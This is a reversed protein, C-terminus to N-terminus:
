LVKIWVGPRLPNILYPEVTNPMPLMINVNDDEIRVNKSVLGTNGKEDIIIGLAALNKSKWKAM